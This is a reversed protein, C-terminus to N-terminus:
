RDIRRRPTRTYFVPPSVRAAERHHTHPLVPPLGQPVQRLVHARRRGHLRRVLGRQPRRPRAQARGHLLARRARAVAGRGGGARRQLGAQRHHGDPGARVGRVGQGAGGAAARGASVCVGFILM